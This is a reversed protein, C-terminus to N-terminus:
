PVGASVGQMSAAPAKAPQAAASAARHEALQALHRADVAGPRHLVLLAVRKESSGASGSSSSSLLSSSGAGAASTSGSTKAPASLDPMTCGQPTDGLVVAAETLGNIPNAWLVVRGPVLMSQASRNGM